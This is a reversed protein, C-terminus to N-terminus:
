VRKEQEDMQMEGLLQDAVDCPAQEVSLAKDSNSLFVMGGGRKYDPIITKIESLAVLRGGDEDPFFLFAVDGVRVIVVDEATRFEEDDSRKNNM